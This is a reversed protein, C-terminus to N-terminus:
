RCLHVTFTGSVEQGIRLGVCTRKWEWLFCPFPFRGPLLMCGVLLWSFPYYFHVLFEPKKWYCLYIFIYINFLGIKRTACWFEWALISNSSHIKLLPHWARVNSFTKPDWRRITTKTTAPYLLKWKPHLSM